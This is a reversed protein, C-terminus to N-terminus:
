ISASWKSNICDSRRGSCSLVLLNSYIRISDAMPSDRWVVGASIREGELNKMEQSVPIQIQKPDIPADFSLWSRKFKECEHVIKTAGKFRVLPNVANVILDGYFKFEPSLSFDLEEKVKGSAITLFSTDLGIKDM